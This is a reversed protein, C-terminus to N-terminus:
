VRALDDMQDSFYFLRPGRARFIELGIASMGADATWSNGSMSRVGDFKAEQGFGIKRRDTMKTQKGVKASKRLRPPTHLEHGRASM